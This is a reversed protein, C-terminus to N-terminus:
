IIIIQRQLLLYMQLINFIDPTNEYKGLTFFNTKKKPPHGHGVVAGWTTGGRCVVIIHM